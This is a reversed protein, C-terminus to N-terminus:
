VLSESGCFSRPQPDRLPVITRGDLSHASNALKGGRVRGVGVKEMSVPKKLIARLKHKGEM